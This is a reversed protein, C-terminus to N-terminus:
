NLFAVQATEEYRVALATRLGDVRRTCFVFSDDIFLRLSGSEAYYNYDSTFNAVERELNPVRRLGVDVDDRGNAHRRSKVIQCGFHQVGSKWEVHMSLEQRPEKVWALVLSSLKM